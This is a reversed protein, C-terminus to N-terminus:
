CKKKKSSSPLLAPRKLSRLRQKNRKELFKIQPTKPSEGILSKHVSYQWQQAPKQFALAAVNARRM